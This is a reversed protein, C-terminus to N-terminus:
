WINPWKNQKWSLFSNRKFFGKMYCLRFVSRWFCFCCHLLRKELKCCFNKYLATLGVACQLLLTRWCFMPKWMMHIRWSPLRYNAPLLYDSSNFCNMHVIKIFVFINEYNNRTLFFLYVFSSLFFVKGDKKGRVSGALFSVCRCFQTLLMRLWNPQLWFSCNKWKSDHCCLSQFIEGFCVLCFM